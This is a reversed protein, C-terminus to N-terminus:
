DITMAAGNPCTEAAEKARNCLEPPIPNLKIIAILEPVEFVEPCITECVACGTCIDQDIMIKMAIEKQFRQEM